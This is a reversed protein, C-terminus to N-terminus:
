RIVPSILPTEEAHKAPNEIWKRGPREKEALSVGRSREPDRAMVVRQTEPTKHDNPRRDLVPMANVARRNRVCGAVSKVPLRQCDSRLAICSQPCSHDGDNANGTPARVDDLLQGVLAYSREHRHIILDEFDCVETAVDTRNL